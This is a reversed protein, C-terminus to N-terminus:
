MSEWLSVRGAGSPPRGRARLTSSLNAISKESHMYQPIQM